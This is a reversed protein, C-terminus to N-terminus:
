DDKGCSKTVDSTYNAPMRVDFNDETPKPCDTLALAKGTAEQYKRREKAAWKEFNIKAATDDRLKKANVYGSQNGVEKEQETKIEFIRALQVYKCTERKAIAAKCQPTAKIKSIREEEAKRQAEEKQALEDAVKDAAAQKAAAIKNRDAQAKKQQALKNLFEVALNTKAALGQTTVYCSCTKAFDSVKRADNAHGYQDEHLASENMRKIAEVNDDLWANVPEERSKDDCDNFNPCKAKGGNVKGLKGEFSKINAVIAAKNDKIVAAWSEDIESSCRESFEIAWKAKKYQEETEVAEVMSNAASISANNNFESVCDAFSTFPAFLLVTFLFRMTM